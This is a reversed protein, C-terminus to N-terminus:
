IKFVRKLSEIIEKETRPEQNPKKLCVSVLKGEDNEITIYEDSYYYNIPILLNDYFLSHLKYSDERVSHELGEHGLDYNETKLQFEMKSKNLNKNRSNLSYEITEILHLDKNFQKPLAM